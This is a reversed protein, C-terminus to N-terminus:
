FNELRLQLVHHEWLVRGDDPLTVGVSSGPQDRSAEQLFDVARRVADPDELSAEGTEVAEELTSVLGPVQDRAEAAPLPLGTGNQGTRAAHLAPDEAGVTGFLLWATGLIGGGILFLGTYFSFSNGGSKTHLSLRPVGM